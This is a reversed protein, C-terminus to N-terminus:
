KLNNIFHGGKVLGDEDLDLTETYAELIETSHTTLIITINSDNDSALKKLANLLRFQWRIHLHVDFEDILLITNQTMHAAIRLFLQVLNKEGSSLQYLRHWNNEDGELKIIAEPPDRLVDKLFKGTGSFVHKNIIECAKEFRGDTLWKLWILLNDLSYRWDTNHASFQHLSRYEWHRPQEIVKRIDSSYDMNPIDRYASFSLATPGPFASEGFTTPIQGKNFRIFGLLDAVLRDSKHTSLPKLTGSRRRIFGARHWSEASHRDLDDKAWVKLSVEDQLNGGLLSLVIQRDKGEWFCRLLIDLQARGQYRDLDDLGLATVEQQDLMGILTAIIDLTTTKGFGNAAVLMFFNCPSLEKDTFDIEYLKHQFPGIRDISLSLPSFEYIVFENTVM